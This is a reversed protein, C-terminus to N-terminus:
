KYKHRDCRTDSIRKRGCTQGRNKGKTLEFHCGGDDSKVSTTDDDDFINLINKNEEEITELSLDNNKNTEMDKQMMATIEERTPIEGSLDNNQTSDIIQSIRQMERNDVADPSESRTKNEDTNRTMARHNVRRMSNQEKSDINKRQLTANDGKKVFQSLVNNDLNRVHDPIDGTSEQANTPDKPTKKTQSPTPYKPTKKTQNENPVHPIEDVTYYKYIQYILLIILVIIIVVLVGIMIRRGWSQSDDVNPDTVPPGDNAESAKNKATKMKKLREVEVDRDIGKMTDDTINPLVPHFETQRSM